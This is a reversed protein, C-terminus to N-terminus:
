AATVAKKGRRRMLARLLLAFLIFPLLLVVLIPLLFLVLWIALNILGQLAQVLSRLAQAATQNPLWTEPEVIQVDQHPVLEITLTALATTKELVNM